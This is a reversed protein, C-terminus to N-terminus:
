FTLENKVAGVTALEIGDEDVYFLNFELLTIKFNKAWLIHLKLIGISHKGPFSNSQM